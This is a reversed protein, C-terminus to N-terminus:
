QMSIMSTHLLVKNCVKSCAFLSHLPSTPTCQARSPLPLHPLVSHMRCLLYKTDPFLCDVGAHAAVIDDQVNRTSATNPRHQCMHGKSTATSCPLHHKILAPTLGPSTALEESHNLAGILTASPLSCMCQHIYRAYKAASATTDVNSAIAFTLVATPPALNDITTPSTLQDRTDKTIPVM